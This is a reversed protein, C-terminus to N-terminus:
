LKPAIKCTLTVSSTLESKGAVLTTGFDYSSSVDASQMQQSVNYIHPTGWYQYSSSIMTYEKITVGATDAIVKANAMADKVALELVRRNDESINEKFFTVGQLINVGSSLATDVIRGADESLVVADSNKLLVTFSQMVKYGIIRPIRMEKRAVYDDEKILGVNFDATKILMDKIKLEQLAALVSKMRTANEERAVSVSASVTEIGMFVRARDSSIWIRGTGSTTIIKHEEKTEQALV